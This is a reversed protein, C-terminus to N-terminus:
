SEFFNGLDHGPQNKGKTKHNVKGIETLSPSAYSRKKIRNEAIDVFTSSKVISNKNMEKQKNM